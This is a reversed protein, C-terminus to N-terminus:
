RRNSYTPTMVRATRSLFRQSHDGVFGVVAIRQPFTQLLATDFQDTRV